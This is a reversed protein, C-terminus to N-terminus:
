TSIFSSEETTTFVVGSILTVFVVLVYVYSKVFALGVHSYFMGPSICLEKFLSRLRAEKFYNKHEFIYEDIALLLKEYRKVRSSIRFARGSSVRGEHTLIVVIVITDLKIWVM